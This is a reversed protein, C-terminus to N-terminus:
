FRSEQEIHSSERSITVEDKCERAEKCSYSPSRSSKEATVCEGGNTNWLQWHPIMSDDDLDLVILDEPYGMAPDERYRVLPPFEQLFVASPPRTPVDDAVGWSDDSSDDSPSSPESTSLEPVVSTSEVSESAIPVSGHPLSWNIDEIRYSCSTELFEEDAFEEFLKSSSYDTSPSYDWHESITPEDNEAMMNTRQAGYQMSRASRRAVACILRRLSTNITPM